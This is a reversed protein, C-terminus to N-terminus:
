FKDLDFADDVSSNEHHLLFDFDEKPKFSPCGKYQM